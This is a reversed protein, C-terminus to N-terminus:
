NSHCVSPFDYQLPRYGDEKSPDLGGEKGRGERENREKGGM